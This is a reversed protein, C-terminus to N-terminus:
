RSQPHRPATRRPSTDVRPRGRRPPRQSPTTDAGHGWGRDPVKLSGWYVGSGREVRGLRRLTSGLRAAVAEARRASSAPVAYVSEYDEGGFLALEAASTGNHSALKELSPDHPDCELVFRVKAGRAMEHLTTALGDSCDMAASARRAMARGLALDPSPRCFRRRCERDFRTSGSGIGGRVLLLGAAAAGFPGSSYLIDGPHAGGRPIMYSARGALSVTVCLEAGFGTDGGVVPFGFESCAERVGRALLRASRVNWLREPLTLSITGALPVVGKAAFDSATASIAKRSIDSLRMGPPVDSSETLSDTAVVIGNVSEADEQPGRLGLEVRLARVIRREPFM